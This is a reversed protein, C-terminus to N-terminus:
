INNNEKFIKTPDSTGDIVNKDVLIKSVGQDFLEPLEYQIRILKHEIISRLGRAGVKKTKAIKAIEVLAEDTFELDVKDLGFLKNFQKVVSNKPETLIQVLQEETLENLHGIVPIRGILEPILGFSVLDESEIQELVKGIEVEKDVVSLKAGIGMSTNNKNLRKNVIKDLGVFAGGVIFLINKTNITLLEQNSNKKGGSAPVRIEAGELMKLLGQQVGEGSVDRNGSSSEKKAKKDIEDIYVIGREAKKIDYGANQVLRTIISEVDDGVYGSETLGTADAIVFPVDLMRAITQGIYTKGSGSPGILLINSKDLEVDDIIPNTIRKYHNSVAVSIVMKAYDQGIVYQDLFERIARPNPIENDKIKPSNQDKHDIEEQKLIGHCLEVCDDCIYAVAGSILRKVEHQSKGCFSCELEKEDSM